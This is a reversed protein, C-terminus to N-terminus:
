KRNKQNALWSTFYAQIVDFPADGMNLLFTHFAMPDFQDGLEKEATQRMNMFEMFGVYYSLYNAPNEIMAIYLADTLDGPDEYYDTLYERVQERNWGMYNIYVDLCAHLGLTAISNAALLEGMEPRLGNDMFYSLYEVYTAWGESYGKFSLLQRIDTKCHTHFYVNQYLHGPYGEHALTNYLENSAFRPNENIFIVNDQYDDIPSVLYFAPSLALELSKPVTKLTYNCEALPPFEKQSLSKLEEIMDEPNTQRYSYTDLEEALEPHYRLLLSTQVLQKNMTLEMDRLLDEISSYSTGTASYVLYEYYEKGQPYACLGKEESGTDRMSNLGDILIQYAPVFHDELLAENKQRYAKKEEETLEPLSDLRSNFTDIMFNDGPTLLYGECSEILHDLLLNSIMLGADAKQRQFDLLQKYYEDIGELLELYDDVDQKKYFVYESLLIPLQAQVGITVALPQAYLELGYSKEETALFSQLIRQTLRQESTLLAPDFRELMTKLSQQEERAQAMDELSIQGYLSQAKDIGYASPDKLMFHLDIQRGSVEDRFLEKMQRDFEKQAKLQEEEFHEYSEFIEEPYPAATTPAAEEPRKSCGNLLFICFVLFVLVFSTLRKPIHRNPAKQLLNM